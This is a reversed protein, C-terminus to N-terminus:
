PEAMKGVSRYGCDRCRYRQWGSVDRGDKPMWNLGCNGCTVDERVARDRGWSRTLSFELGDSSNDCQYPGRTGVSCGHEIIM